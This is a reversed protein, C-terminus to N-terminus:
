FDEVSSSCTGSCSSCDSSPVSAIFSGRFDSDTMGGSSGGTVGGRGLQLLQIRRHEDDGHLAGGEDWRLATGIAHVLAAIAEAISALHAGQHRKALLRRNPEAWGSRTFLQDITPLPRFPTTDIFCSPNFKILDLVSGFRSHLGGADQPCNPRRCGNQKRNKCSLPIPNIICPMRKWGTATM